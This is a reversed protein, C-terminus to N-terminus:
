LYNDGRVHQPNTIVLAPRGFFEEITLLSTRYTGGEIIILLMYIVYDCLQPM